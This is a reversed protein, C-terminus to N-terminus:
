SAASGPNRASAGPDDEQGRGAVGGRDALLRGDGAGPVRLAALLDAVRGRGPVVAETDLELWPALVFDREHARPHPLTLLPDDSRLDEYAIVDLDLIRDGWREERVRGHANEIVHLAALLADPALTTTVLGVANVYGPKDPDPGTPTIAVSEVLASMRIGTVGTLAAIEREADALTARRDGLNAGFAVVAEVLPGRVARETPEGSREENTGPRRATAGPDGDPRRSSSALEAMRGDDASASGLRHEALTGSRADDAGTRRVAAGAAAARGEGPDADGPGDPEPVESTM